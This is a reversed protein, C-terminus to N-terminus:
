VNLLINLSNEFKTFHMGLCSLEIYTERFM